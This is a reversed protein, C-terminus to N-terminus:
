EGVMNEEASTSHSNEMDVEYGFFCLMDENGELIKMIKEIQEDNLKAIQKYNMDIIPQDEYDKVKVKHSADIKNKFQSLNFLDLVTLPDQCFGEYTLVPFKEREAIEKLIYGREVWHEALNILVDSRREEDAKQFDIYRFFKSSISAYPNRNNIVVGHHDFTKLLDKYRVMHPPSKEFIYQIKPRRQLRQEIRESWVAKVSDWDFKRDPEWRRRDSMGKLLWQGEYRSQLSAVARLQCVFNAIATSGSNPPTLLLLFKPEDTLNHSPLPWRDRNMPM